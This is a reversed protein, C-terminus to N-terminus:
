LVSRQSKTSGYGTSEVTYMLHPSIPRRANREGEREVLINKPSSRLSAEPGPPSHQRRRGDESSTVCSVEGYIRAYAMDTDLRTQDYEDGMM